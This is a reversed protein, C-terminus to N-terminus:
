RDMELWEDKDLYKEKEKQENYAAEVGKVVYKLPIGDERMTIKLREETNILINTEELEKQLAAYSAQMIKNDPINIIEIMKDYNEEHVAIKNNCMVIYEIGLSEAFRLKGLIATGQMDDFIDYGFYEGYQAVIKWKNIDIDNRKFFGYRNSYYCAYKDSMGTKTIHKADLCVDRVPLGSDYRAIVESPEKPIMKLCKEVPKKIRYLSTNKDNPLTYVFNGKKNKRLEKEVVEYWSCLAELGFDATNRMEQRIFGKAKSAATKVAQYAKFLLYLNDAEEVSIDRGSSLRSTLSNIYSIDIHTKASVPRPLDPVPLGNAVAGLVDRYEVPCAVSYVNKRANENRLIPIDIKLLTKIKEEEIEREYIPLLGLVGFRAFEVKFDYEHKHHYMVDFSLHTNNKLWKVMQGNACVSDSTKNKKKLSFIKSQRIESMTKIVRLKLTDSNWSCGLPPCISQSPISTIFNHHKDSIRSLVEKYWENVAGALPSSIDFGRYDFNERYRGEQRWIMEQYWGMEYAYVVVALIFIYTAEEKSVDGQTRLKETMKKVFQTEREM